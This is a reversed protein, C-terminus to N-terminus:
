RLVKQLRDAPTEFDLVKGVLNADAVFAVAQRWAVVWTRASPKARLHNRSESALQAPPDRCIPRRGSVTRAERHNIGRLM